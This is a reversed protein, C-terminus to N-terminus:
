AAAPQQDGNVVTRDRYALVDARAYRVARTGVIRHRPGVGKWRWFELTAVKLGLLAACERADILDEDQQLM